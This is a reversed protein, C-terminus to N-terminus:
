GGTSTRQLREDLTRVARQSSEFARSVVIMSVLLDVPEANSQELAGARVRATTPRESTGANRFRTASEAVLRSPDAVDVLPIRGVRQDKQSLEGTESIAVPLKPDIRGGDLVLHDGSADVLAGDATPVFTGGRVYRIGRPTEIQFFGPGDIALDLPNGTSAIAGQRFDIAERLRPMPMTAPGSAQARLQREFAGMTMGRRKFGITSANALNFALTDQAKALAQMSAAGEYLGSDM